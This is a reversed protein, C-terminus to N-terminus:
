GKIDDVSRMDLADRLGNGLLMFALVLITTCLGPLLAMYAMPGNFYDKHDALMSGWSPMPAQAGIGLFSMGAEILIASAFNAASVVIVPGMVNPLVHKFIIRMSRFGLAKGAEIYEKERVSLVQGRVLRAVEVWMTLGVALFVQTFGKGLAVTIAIILLLTPISWVVNILWMIVDDVWGRYYGAIAGLMIGIVLSIIVSILGVSLSVITGAMLRSLMDRGNRDTGLWYTYRKMQHNKIQEQMDTISEVHRKNNIDYFIVNGKDDATMRSNENLPYIVDALEYSSEPATAKAEETDGTYEKIIIKTGVFEFGSIPLYIYDEERGGFFLMEYFATEDAPTDKRWLLFNCNFGPKKTAINRIEIDANTTKDPRILAGFISILSAVVIMVLGFMAIRNKKLRRWAMKSLSRSIEENAQKKEKTEM